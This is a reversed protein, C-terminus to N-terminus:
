IEDRRVFEIIHLSFVWKADPSLCTRFTTSAEGDDEITLACFSTLRGAVDRTASDFEIRSRAELIRDNAQIQTECEYIEDLVIPYLAESSCTTSLVAESGAESESWSLWTRPDYVIDSVVHGGENQVSVYVYMKGDPGYSATQQLTFTVGRETVLIGTASEGEDYVPPHEVLIIDQALAAIPFATFAAAAFFRAVLWM